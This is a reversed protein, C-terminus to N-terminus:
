MCAAAAAAAGRVSVHIEHHNIYASIQLKKLQFVM